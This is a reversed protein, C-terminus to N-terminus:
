GRVDRRCQRHVFRGLGDRELNTRVPRQRMKKRRRRRLVEKGTGYLQWSALSLGGSGIPVFGPWMWRLDVGQRVEGYPEGKPGGDEEKLAEEARDRDKKRLDRADLIVLASVGCADSRRVRYRIARSFM